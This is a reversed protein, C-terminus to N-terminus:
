KEVEKLIGDIAAIAAFPAQTNITERIMDLATEFEGCKAALADDQKEASVRMEGYKAQIFTLAEEIGGFEPAPMRPAPDEVPATEFVAEDLPEDVPDFSQDGMSGIAAPIGASIWHVSAVCGAESSMERRIAGQSELARLADGVRHMNHPEGLAAAIEETTKSPTSGVYSGRAEIWEALVPRTQRYSNIRMAVKRGESTVSVRTMWRAHAMQRTVYGREELSRITGSLTASPLSESLFPLLATSASVKVGDEGVKEESVGGARFMLAALIQAQVEGLPQMHQEDPAPETKATVPKATVPKKEKFSPDTGEAAITRHDPDAPRVVVVPEPNAAAEAIAKEEQWGLREERRVGVPVTIVKHDRWTESVFVERKQGTVRHATVVNGSARLLGRVLDVHNEHVGRQINNARRIYYSVSEDTLIWGRGFRSHEMAPTKGGDITSRILEYTRYAQTAIRQELTLDSMPTREQTATLTSM